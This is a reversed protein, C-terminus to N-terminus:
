IDSNDSPPDVKYGCKVIHARMPLKNEYTVLKGDEVLPFGYEDVKFHTVEQTMDMCPIVFQYAIFDAFVELTANARVALAKFEAVTFVVKKKYEERDRSHRLCNIVISPSGSKIGGGIFVTSHHTLETRVERIKRYWELTPITSLYELDDYEGKAHKKVFRNFNDPLTKSYGVKASCASAVKAAIDSMGYLSNAIGEVAFALRMSPRADFRYGNEGIPAAAKGAQIFEAVHDDLDKIALFVNRQKAQWHSLWTYHANGGHSGITLEALKDIGM